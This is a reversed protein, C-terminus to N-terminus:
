RIGRRRFEGICCEVFYALGIGVASRLHDFETKKVRYVLKGSDDRLDKILKGAVTVYYPEAYAKWSRPCVLEVRYGRSILYGQLFGIAKQIKAVTFWSAPKIGYLKTKKSDLRFFLFDEVVFTVNSDLFSISKAIELIGEITRVRKEEGFDYVGYFPACVSVRGNVFFEYFVKKKGESTKFVSRKLNRLFLYAEPEPILELFVCGLTKRTGTDIAIIKFANEQYDQWRGALEKRHCSHSTHGSCSKLDEYTPKCSM